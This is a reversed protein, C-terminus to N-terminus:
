SLGFYFNKDTHKCALIITVGNSVQKRKRMLTYLRSAYRIPQMIYKDDNRSTLLIDTYSIHNYYILLIAPAYGSFKSPLSPKQLNPCLNKVTRLSSIIHLCLLAKKWFYSDRDFVFLKPQYVFGFMIECYLSVGSAKVDKNPFVFSTANTQRYWIDRRWKGSAM